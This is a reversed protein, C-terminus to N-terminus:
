IKKDKEEIFRKIKNKARAIVTSVTNASINFIEAIEKHKKGSLYNLELYAKERENLFRMAENLLDSKEKVFMISSDDIMRTEATLRNQLFDEERKKKRMFDITLNSALVILWPAINDRESVTALSKKEWISTFLHQYIDEVDSRLHASYYRNLKRKIAWYVLGSFRDIFNSWAGADGSLCRMVLEKDSKTEMVSTNYMDLPINALIFYHRKFVLSVQTIIGKIVLL